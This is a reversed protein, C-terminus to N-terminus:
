LSNAYSLFKFAGDREVVSGFWLRNTSDGKADVVRVLCGSYRTNRGERHVEPDCRVGAFSMPKGGYQRLLRTLGRTSLDQMLGWATQPPQQYPPHSLPSEPYYLDAYERAHVAMARLDTTDSAVVARLFRRALEELSASGGRFTTASDGGIAERFRRLEEDVPFISDVVYGPQARNISDQRARAISDARVSDAALQAEKSAASGCAAALVAAVAVICCTRYKPMTRRNLLQRELIALQSLALARRRSGVWAGPASM